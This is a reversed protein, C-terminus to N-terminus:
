SVAAVAEAETDHLDVVKMLQVITLLDRHPDGARHSHSAAGATMPRRKRMHLETGGGPRPHWDARDMVRRILLV